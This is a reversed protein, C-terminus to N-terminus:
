DFWYQMRSALLTELDAITSQIEAKQKEILEIRQAFLQQLPLPPLIVPIKRFDAMNIQKLTIGKTYDAIICKIQPMQFQYYMFWRDTNDNFLLPTIGRTVNCGKLEDTVLSCVGTTGRVCVLLEKGTLITRSYSSSIKETTKKLNNTSVFTGTLDIPRVVPIGDEVGDGPQVIGYSITCELVVTEILKKVEWGKENVVPDGFMEYCISQALNDYDKLQEKKLRILENIKDLESVISKQISLPPLPIIVNEVITKSIEKFTAGRGLSNLYETKGSLWLYLYKNNIADSCILNKFGQNCYMEITTIAVKGIPARSSLLVTGIPLLTLNTHAIAEETIHRATDSIYVDGKLEAPTVWPYNGDWYESINTKPTSGTVVQCVDGLKKYEWGERMGRGGKQKTKAYYGTQWLWDCKYIQKRKSGNCVDQELKM